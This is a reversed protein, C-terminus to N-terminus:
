NATVRTQSPVPTLGTGTPTCMAQSDQLLLPAGNSFVRTAGSTWQASVCPPSGSAALSCGAITYSGTQMVVPQGMVKVRPSVTLPQAQGGHMCTVTAGSHLIFGAM